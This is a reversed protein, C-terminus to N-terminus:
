SSVLDCGIFERRSLQCAELVGYGGACPDVVLDGIKTTARILRETLVHPKAHPHISRDASEPWSDDIGHDTWVGKARVPQKQCVILYESRCRARRGMGPRLKNWHIVDVVQLLPARALHRLHRGTGLAFKDIWLFLHGSPQLVRQTEEIFCSILDDTMQPLAARKRERSEGENGYDLADLVARYQPDLFVAAASRRGLSRLLGIGGMRNRANRPITM